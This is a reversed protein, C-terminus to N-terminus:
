FMWIAAVVVACFIFFAFGSQPQPASLAEIQDARLYIVQPPPASPQKNFSSFIALAFLSSIAIIIFLEM